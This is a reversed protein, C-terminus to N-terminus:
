VKEKKLENLKTEKELKSKCMELVAKNFRVSDKLNELEREVNKVMRFWLSEEKTEALKLGLNKDEIM